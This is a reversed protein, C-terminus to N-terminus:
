RKEGTKGSRNGRINTIKVPQTTLASLAVAVRVLQGGGEGTKGDLVIPKKGKAMGATCKGTGAHASELCSLFAAIPQQFYSSSSNM